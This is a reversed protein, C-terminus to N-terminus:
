GLVSLLVRARGVTAQCHQSCPLVQHTIRKIHPQAISVTYISLNFSPSQLTVHRSWFRVRGCETELMRAAEWRLLGFRWKKATLLRQCWQPRNLWLYTCGLATSSNVNRLVGWGLLFPLWYLQQWREIRLHSSELTHKVHNILPDGDSNLNLQRSRYGM